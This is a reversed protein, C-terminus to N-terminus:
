KKGLLNELLRDMALYQKSLVKGEKDILVMSPIGVIKYTEAVNGKEDLLVRYSVNYKEAFRSVKERPEEIDINVVELGHRSYKEHISIYRPMESRCTPCWTTIFILLVPKGKHASLTFNKGTLDKLSFDPATMHTSNKEAEPKRSESCSIMSALVAVMFGVIAVFFFRAKADMIFDKM